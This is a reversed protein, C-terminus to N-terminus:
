YSKVYLEYVDGNVEQLGWFYSTSYGVERVHTNELQVEAEQPAMTLIGTRQGRGWQGQGQGQGQGQLMELLRQVSEDRAGLTQKQSHIRMEMEEM